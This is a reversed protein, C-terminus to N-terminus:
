HLLFEMTDIVGVILNSGAFLGSKVVPFYEKFKNVVAETAKFLGANPQMYADIQPNRKQIKAEPQIARLPVSEYLRQLM